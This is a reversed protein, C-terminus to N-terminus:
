RNGMYKIAASCGTEKFTSATSINYGVFIMISYALQGTAFPLTGIDSGMQAALYSTACTVICKAIAAGTEVQARKKYLMRQQVLTFCPEAFLEMIVSVCFLGLSTKFQAMEHLSESANYYSVSLIPLLLFGLCISLHSINVASQLAGAANGNTGARSSSSTSQRQVALRFSERAFFLASILLLELQAAVGLISPSLYRLVAQNAIFTLARSSIQILVLFKMGRVSDQLVDAQDEAAERTETSM